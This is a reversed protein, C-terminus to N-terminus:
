EKLKYVRLYKTPSAAKGQWVYIENDAIGAWASGIESDFENLITGDKSDFLRLKGDVTTAFVIGPSCCLALNRSRALDLVGPSMLAEWEIEGTHVNMASMYQNRLDWKVLPSPTPTVDNLRPVYPHPTFFNTSNPLPQFDDGSLNRQVTYIKDNDVASGFNAGGLTSSTGLYKWHLVSYDSPGANVDTLQLVGGQGQKSAWVLKDGVCCCRQGMDGDLGAPQEWFHSAEVFGNAVQASRKSGVNPNTSPQEPIQWADFGLSRFNWIVEGLHGPRLNLAVISDIYNMKGRPSIATDALLARQRCLEVSNDQAARITVLDETMIADAIAQQRDNYNSNAPVESSYNSDFFLAEDYPTKHGQGTAIYIEVPVGNDDVKYAPPGNWTSPGAYRLEYAEDETLTDQPLLKKTIRLGLLDPDVSFQQAPNSHGVVTFVNGEFGNVWELDIRVNMEQYNLNDDVTEGATLTVLNGTNDSATIGDLIEPVTNGFESVGLDAADKHLTFCTWNGGDIDFRDGPTLPGSDINLRVQVNGHGPIFPDRIEEYDMDGPANIKEGALLNRPGIPTELILKGTLAHIFMITGQNIYSRLRRQINSGILNGNPRDQFLLAGIFYQGVYNTGVVFVPTEDGNGTLDINPIIVGSFGFSRFNDDDNWNTALNGYEKYWVLDGTNKNICAVGPRKGSGTVPLFGFLKLGLDNNPNDPDATSQVATFANSSLCYIYDGYVSPASRSGSRPDGTYDMWERQWLIFGDSRRIAAVYYGSSDGFWGSFNSANFSTLYITDETVTVSQNTQLVETPTTAILTEYKLAINKANEATLLTSKEAFARAGIDAVGAIWTDKFECDNLIEGNICINGNIEVDGNVELDGVVDLDGRVKANKVKLNRNNDIVKSGNIQLSSGILDRDIRGHNSAM